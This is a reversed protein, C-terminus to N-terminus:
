QNKGMWLAAKGAFALVLAAIIWFALYDLEPM